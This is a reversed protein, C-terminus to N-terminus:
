SITVNPTVVLTVIDDRKADGILDLSNDSVAPAVSVWGSIDPLIEFELIMTGIGRPLPHRLGGFSAFLDCKEGWVLDRRLM